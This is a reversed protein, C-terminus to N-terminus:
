RWFIDLTKVNGLNKIAVIKIRTMVVDWSSNQSPWKSNKQQKKTKNKNWNKTERQEQLPM